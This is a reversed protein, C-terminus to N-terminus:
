CRSCPNDAHHGRLGFAMDFHRGLGLSSNWITQLVFVPGSPADTGYIRPPRATAARDLTFVVVDRGAGDLVSSGARIV